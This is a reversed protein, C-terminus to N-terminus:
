TWAVRASSGPGLSSCPRLSSPGLGWSTRRPWETDRFIYM